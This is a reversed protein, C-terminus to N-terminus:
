RPAPKDAATNADAQKKNAAANEKETKVIDKCDQSLEYKPKGSGAAKQKAMCDKMLQHRTPVPAAASAAASSAAPAPEDAYVAAGLLAAALCLPRLRSLSPHTM